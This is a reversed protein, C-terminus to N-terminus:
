IYINRNFNRCNSSTIHFRMFNAATLDLEGGNHHAASLPLRIHNWGAKWVYNDITWMYENRDCTGSSTLEFQLGYTSKELVSLDSMYIDMEMHTAWSVDIPDFRRQVVVRRDGSPVDATLPVAYMHCYSGDAGLSVDRPEPSGGWGFNGNCDDFVWMERDYGYARLNDIQVYYTKNELPTVRGFNLSFYNANEASFGATAAEDFSLKIHNWGVHFPKAYLSHSWTLAQKKNNGSSSLTASLLMTSDLLDLDSLYLDFELVEMGFVNVPAFSYDVYFDTQSYAPITTRVGVSADGEVKVNRDLYIQGNSSWGTRDDCHSIVIPHTKLLTKEEAFSPTVMCSLLLVAILATALVRRIMCIGGLFASDNDRAIGRDPM